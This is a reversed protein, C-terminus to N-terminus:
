AERYWWRDGLGSSRKVLADLRRLAEGSELADAARRIGESINAAAGAVMLAAGANLLVIDRRPGKEGGLVNRVIAANAAADGGSIQAETARQFGFEEPTIHYERVEGGNLETVRTAGCVTIEDMGDEGHVAIARRVGLQDLAGILNGALRDSHLGLMRAPPNAPSALPGVLNFISRLGIERRPAALHRLASQFLPEYFFGVGVEEICTEVASPPLDLDIGLAELVDGCGCLPSVTRMGHRVVAVGAAAVVFATATSVNFTRTAGPGAAMDCMTEQDINIDDRDLSISPGHVRIPPFLTRFVKAAGVLEAVTPGKVRIGMLFAGTQAATTEGDVMCTMAEVMENETLDMGEALKALTERIM